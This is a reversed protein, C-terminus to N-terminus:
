ITLKASRQISFLFISTKRHSRLRKIRPKLICRIGKVLESLTDLDEKEFEAWEVSNMIHTFVRRLNFSKPKMFKPGKTILSRLDENDILM